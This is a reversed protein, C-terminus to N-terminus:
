PVILGSPPMIIGSPAAPEPAPPEATKGMATVLDVIFQDVEPRDKEVIQFVHSVRRKELDLSFMLKFPPLEPHHFLVGYEVVTDSLPVVAGALITQKRPDAGEPLPAAAQPQPTAAPQAKREVAKKARTQKRNPTVPM